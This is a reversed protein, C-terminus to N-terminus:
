VVTWNVTVTFPQGTAAITGTFVLVWRQGGEIGTFEGIQITADRPFVRTPEPNTVITNFNGDPYSLEVRVLKIDVNPRTVIIMGQTGSQLGMSFSVGPAPPVIPAAMPGSDKRCGVTALLMALLGSVFMRKM